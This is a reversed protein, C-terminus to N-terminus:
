YISLERKQTTSIFMVSWFIPSKKAFCENALMASTLQRM